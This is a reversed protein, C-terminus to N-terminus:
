VRNRTVTARAALFLTAAGAFLDLVDLTAVDAFGM